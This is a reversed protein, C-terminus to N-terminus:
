EKKSNIEDIIDTLVPEAFCRCLVAQGPHGGIPPNNWSFIKGDRDWHSPRASPYIGTPNGRVRRDEMSQWVYRKVGLQTQRIKTLQGNFKNVQDRAIRKAVNRSKGYQDIIQDRIEEHRIGQMTGRYITQEIDSFYRDSITKILAVNENTFANIEQALWPEDIFIDVGIMRRFVKMVEKKNFSSVSVGVSNAIRRYREEPYLDEFEKYSSKILEDIEDSFDDMTDTKPRLFASKDVISELKPYINKITVDELKSVLMNLDKQYAKEANSPFLHNGGRKINIRGSKKKIIQNRILAKLLSSQDNDLSVIM